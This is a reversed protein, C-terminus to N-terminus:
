QHLFGPFVVSRYFDYPTKLPLTLANVSLLNDTNLANQAEDDYRSREIDKDSM